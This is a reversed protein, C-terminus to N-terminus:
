PQLPRPRGRARLMHFFQERLSDGASESDKLGKPSALGFEAEGTYATDDARWLLRLGDPARAAIYSYVKASYAGTQTPKQPATPPPPNPPQARTDTGGTLTWREEGPPPARKKRKFPTYLRALVVDAASADFALEVPGYKEAETRNWEEVAQRFDSRVDDQSPAILFVRLPAAAPLTGAAAEAVSKVGVRSALLKLFKSEEGSRQQAAAPRCLSVLLLLLALSRTM